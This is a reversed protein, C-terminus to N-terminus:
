EGPNALSLLRYGHRLRTRIHRRIFPWAEGLSPFPSVLVRQGGGKRGYIRVVASEGFLTRQWALFYFKNDGKAPNVRDFLLYHFNEPAAAWRDAMKTKTSMDAM